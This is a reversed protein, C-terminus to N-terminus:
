VYRIEFRTFQGSPPNREFTINHVRALPPGEFAARHLEELASDEGEAVIEVDGSRLNRVYGVVGLNTAAAAVFARYSVGQVRGSVVMRVQGRM